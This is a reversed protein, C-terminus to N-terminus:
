LRFQLQAANSSCFFFKYIFLLMCEDSQRIADVKWIRMLQGDIQFSTAASFSEEFHM